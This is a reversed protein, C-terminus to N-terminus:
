FHLAQLIVPIQEAVSNLNVTLCVFASMFGIDILRMKLRIKGYISMVVYIFCCVVILVPGIRTNAIGGLTIGFTDLIMGALIGVVALLSKALMLENQKHKISSQEKSYELFGKSKSVISGAFADQRFQTETQLDEITFGAGTNQDFVRWIGDDCMHADERATYSKGNAYFVNGKKYDSVKM